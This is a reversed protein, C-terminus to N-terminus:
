KNKGNGGSSSGGNGNSGPLKTGEQNLVGEIIQNAMAILVDAYDTSIKKGSQAEVQNIFSGLQNIGDQYEGLEFSIATNAPKAAPLRTMNWCIPNPSATATNISAVIMLDTRTGALM